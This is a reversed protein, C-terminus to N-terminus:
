PGPEGRDGKPGPPGPPGVAGITVVFRDFKVRGNGPGRAVTLLYSGPAVDPLVAVIRNSSAALVVLERSDIWVRADTGFNYGDIVLTGDAHNAAAATIQLQPDPQAQVTAASAVVFSAAVLFRRGIAHRRGTRAPRPM